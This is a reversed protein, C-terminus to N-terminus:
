LLIFNHLTLILYAFLVKTGKQGIFFQLESEVGNLIVSVKQEVTSETLFSLLLKTRLRLLSQVIRLLQTNKKRANSVPIRTLMSVNPLVFSHFSLLKVLVQGVWCICVIHNSPALHDHQIRCPHLNTHRFQVTRWVIAELGSEDFHIAVTSLVQLNWLFNNLQQKFM